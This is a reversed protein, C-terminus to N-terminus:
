LARVPICAQVSTEWAIQLALYRLQMAICCDELMTRAKLQIRTDAHFSARSLEESQHSGCALFANKQENM